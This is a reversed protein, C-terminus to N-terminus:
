QNDEGRSGPQSRETGTQWGKEQTVAERGTKDELRSPELVLAGRHQRGKGFQDLFDTDVVEGFPRIIQGLRHSQAPPEAHRAFESRDKGVTRRLQGLDASRVLTTYPFLTDTRTSRPPLRIMLFFIFLCIFTSM